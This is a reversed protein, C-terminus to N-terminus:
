FVYGLAAKCTVATETIDSFDADDSSFNYRYGSVGLCYFLNKIPTAGRWDVGLTLGVTDGKVEINEVSTVTLPEVERGNLRDFTMTGTENRNLKSQLYAVGVRVAILGHLFGPGAIQSGHTMGIFPGEYRFRDHGSGSYRGNAVWNDIILLSAPGDFCTDLDVGAWKYGGFISLKGTVAYGTAIAQDTRDFRGRFEPEASAFYNTDGEAYEYSAARSRDSGDFAWQGSLDVFIRGTFFTIGGGIFRISDCFEVKEKGSGQGSSEGPITLITKSWASFEMSYFMLGTELRPHFELEAACSELRFLLSCTVLVINLLWIRKKMSRSERM